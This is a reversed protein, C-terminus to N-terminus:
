SEGRDKIGFKKKLKEKMGIIDVQPIIYKWMRKDIADYLERVNDFVDLLELSEKGVLWLRFFKRGKDECVDVRLSGEEIIEKVYDDRLVYYEITKMDPLILDPHTEQGSFCYRIKDGVRFGEHCKKRIERVLELMMKEAESLARDEQDFGYDM